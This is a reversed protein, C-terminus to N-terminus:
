HLWSSVKFFKRKRAEEELRLREGEDIWEEGNAIARERAEEERREKLFENRSEM